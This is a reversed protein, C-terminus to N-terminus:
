ATRDLVLETLEEIVRAPTGAVRTHPAVDKNVLAGAAVVAGAGITVGPLVVCRPGLWAGNEVVIQARLIEGARHEKPGIQHSSTLLMVQHGITTNDGISIRDELDLTVDAGIWCDTGIALNRTLQKKGNLRPNSQLVTGVGITVGAWRLLEIRRQPFLTAFFLAINLRPHVGATEEALITQLRM